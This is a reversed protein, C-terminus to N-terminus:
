ALRRVLLGKPLPTISLTWGKRRAYAKVSPMIKSREALMPGSMYEQIPMTDLNDHWPVLKSDGVALRSIGYKEARGLCKPEPQPKPIRAPRDWYLATCSGCRRPKVNPDRGYWEYGCRCCKHKEM